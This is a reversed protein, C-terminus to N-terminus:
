HVIIEKRAVGLIHEIKCAMVSNKDQFAKRTSAEFLQIKTLTWKENRTLETTLVLQL